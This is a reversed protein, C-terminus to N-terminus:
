RRKVYCLHEAVFTVSSMCLEHFRTAHPRLIPMHPYIDTGSVYTRTSTIMKYSTCFHWFLLSVFYNLCQFLSIPLTDVEVAGGCLGWGAGMMETVHILRKECREVLFRHEFGIIILGLHLSSRLLGLVTASM